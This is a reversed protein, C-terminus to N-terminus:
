RAVAVRKAALRAALQRGVRIMPVEVVVLIGALFAPFQGPVWLFVFPEVTERDLGGLAL